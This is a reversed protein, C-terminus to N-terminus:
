RKKLLGVKKRVKTLTRYARFQARESGENIIDELYNKDKMLELYKNRIPLLKEIILESLEKKLVGYGKSNFDEVVEDPTKKAFSSYINILNTIGPKKDNIEIKAESDTVASMVKKQILKEDDLLYITANANQDSKSMKNAPNQLSMIRKGIDSIYPRPITFTESYKSNFRQALNRSLELHQKQDAGVPVLDANYLLIDAAMLVPYMLLGSNLFQNKNLEINNNALAQSKDKFQTMRQLEGLPTLCSFIWALDTHGAVHSQVFISCKSPDLGCAIYQAVCSITNKRLDSPTYNITMSHLDVIGFYCNNGDIMPGWNRIAGLYNGITLNGTPQACTLITSKDKKEM